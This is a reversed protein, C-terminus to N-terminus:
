VNLFIITKIYVVINILFDKRYSINIKNSQFIDLHPSSSLVESHKDRSLRTLVM